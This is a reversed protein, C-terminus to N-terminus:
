LAKPDGRHVQLTLKNPDLPVKLAEVKSPDNEELPGHRELGNNKPSIMLLRLPLPLSTQRLTLVATRLYLLPDGKRM